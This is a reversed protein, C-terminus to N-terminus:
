PEARSRARFRRVAVPLLALLGLGAFALIVDTTFIDGLDPEGGARFISDLGHGVQAYVFGGPIIGIFTAAVYTRLPVGLFAPALNVVFFPFVPVLRLFLLYSFANERFGDELRKVRGGARRRLADGLASRAALFVLTAGITAGIVAWVTGFINGFLFGGTVTLVTAGPVSLATATAYLAIFTIVALVEREAVFAQLADRNDRIARFSLWDDLGFAFFAAIALVLLALPGFRRLVGPRKASEGSHSDTM